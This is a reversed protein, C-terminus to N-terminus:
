YALATKYTQYGPTIVTAMGGQVPAETHTLHLTIVLEPTLANIRSITGPEIEGTKYNPYDYLRFRANPDERNEFYNEIYGGERSIYAEIPNVENAKLRGYKQLIKKFDRKGESTTTKDLLVKVKTAIDYMVEFEWVGRARAGERFKDLYVGQRRDFKDGYLTHPILDRGGHGPDIVVRYAFVPITPIISFFLVLRILM